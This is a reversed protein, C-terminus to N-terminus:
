FVILFINYFFINRVQLQPLISEMLMTREIITDVLPSSIFVIMSPKPSLRLWDADKDEFGGRLIKEM